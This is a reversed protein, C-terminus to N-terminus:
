FAALALPVAGDLAPVVAVFCGFLDGVPADFLDHELDLLGPLVRRARSNAPVRLLELGRKVYETARERLQDAIQVHVQGPDSGKARLLRGTVEEGGQDGDGRITRLDGVVEAKGRLHHLLEATVAPDVGVDRETALAVLRHLDVQAVDM